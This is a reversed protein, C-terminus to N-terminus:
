RLRFWYATRIGALQLNLNSPGVSGLSREYFLAVELKNNRYVNRIIGGTLSLTQGYFRNARREEFQTYTLIDDADRPTYDRVKCMMEYRSAFSAYPTYGAKVFFQSKDTVWQRYRVGVPLSVLRTTTKLNLLQGYTHDYAPLEFNGFHEDVNFRTTSYDASTEVSWRPSLVWEASLGIRPAIGGKGESFLGEAFDAHPALNIGLGGFYHKELENRTKASIDQHKVAAPSDKKSNLEAWRFRPYIQFYNASALPTSTSVFGSRVQTKSDGTLFVQGDKIHVVGKEILLDLVATDMEGAPGLAQSRARMAPTNDPVKIYVTKFVPHLNYYSQLSDMRNQLLSQQSRFGDIIASLSDIKLQSQRVWESAPGSEKPISSTGDFYFYSNVLTFLLAAAIGSLLLRNRVYWPAPAHEALRAQLDALASPDFDPDHYGELKDKIFSDFSHEDM